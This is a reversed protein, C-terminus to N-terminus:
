IHPAQKCRSALNRGPTCCSAGSARDACGLAQGDETGLRVPFGRRLDDDEGDDHGDGPQTSDGHEEGREDRFWCGDRIRTADTL